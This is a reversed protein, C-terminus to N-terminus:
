SLGWLKKFRDAFDPYGTWGKSPDFTIDSQTLFQFDAIGQAQGGNLKQDAILRAAVDITAWSQVPTDYAIVATEQGAKLYQFNIPTPSSGFTKVSIGAAKLASPLGNEVEDNPFVAVTTGPHAQLDSVITQPATTGVTAIAVQVDRAKCTSCSKALEDDFAKTTAATFQLEPNTYSVVNSKPGFKATVYDAMLKGILNDIVESAQSSAGKQDALGTVGTTVVKVNESLLQTLQRSWLDLSIGGVIVAAPKQSIVTNFATNVTDAASGANIEYLHVGMAKAAPQILTYQFQGYPTGPYLYAIKAGSPVTKLKDVVPFASPRGIYPAIAAEASAAASDSATSSGSSAGASGSTSSSGCGGLAVAASAALLVASLRITTNRHKM